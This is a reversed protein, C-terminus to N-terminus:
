QTSAQTFITPLNFFEFNAFPYDSVERWGNGKTQKPYGDAKPDIDAPSQGTRHDTYYIIGRWNNRLGGVTKEFGRYQFTLKERYITPTSPLLEGKANVEVTGSPSVSTCLWTEPDCNQWAQANTAGQLFRYIVPVTGFKEIRWREFEVIMGPRLVECPILGSAECYTQGAFPYFGPNHGSRGPLYLVTHPTGNAEFTTEEHVATGDVRVTVRRFDSWTLMVFCQTKSNACPMTEMGTLYLGPIVSHPCAFTIQPNGQALAQIANYEFDGNAPLDFLKVMETKSYGNETRVLKRGRQIYRITVAM